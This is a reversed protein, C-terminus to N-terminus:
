RSIRIIILENVDTYIFMYKNKQHLHVMHMLKQVLQVLTIDDDIVM